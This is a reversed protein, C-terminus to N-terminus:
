RQLRKRILMVSIILIIFITIGIVADVIFTSLKDSLSREKEVEVKKEKNTVHSLSDFKAKYYGVSDFRHRYISLSDELSKERESVERLTEKLWHWEKTGIVNGSQDVVTVMSDKKETHSETRTTEKEGVHTSHSVITTDQQVLHSDTSDTKLTTNSETHSEVSKTTKCGTLLALLLLAAIWIMCFACVKYVAGSKLLKKDYYDM